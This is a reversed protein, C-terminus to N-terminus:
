KNVQDLCLKGCGDEQLWTYVLGAMLPGFVILPFIIYRWAPYNWYKKTTNWAVSRCVKWWKRSEVLQTLQTGHVGAGSKDNTQELPETEYDYVDIGLPYHHSFRKNNLGMPYRSNTEERLQSDILDSGLDKWRKYRQELARSDHLFKLESLRSTLADESECARLKEYWDGDLKRFNIGSDGLRNVIHTWTIADGDYDLVRAPNPLASWRKM